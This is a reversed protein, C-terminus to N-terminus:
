FNEDISQLKSFLTLRENSFNPCHLLYHITTEVTGCSCVPNLTHKFKHFRPHSLSLTLRAILKLGNPSHCHFNSNAAPRLFALIHKKFILLSESNRIDSDLNNWEIITSPFFHNKFYVHKVNFLPISNKHRAM